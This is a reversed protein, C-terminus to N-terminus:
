KYNVTFIKGSKSTPPNETNTKTKASDNWHKCDSAQLDHRWFLLVDSILQQPNLFWNKVLYYCLGQERMARGDSSEKPKLWLLLSLVPPSPTNQCKQGQRPGHSLRLHNSCHPPREYNLAVPTPTDSSVTPFPHTHRAARETPKSLDTITGFRQHVAWIDGANEKNM